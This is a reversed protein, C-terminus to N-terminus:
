DVLALLDEKMHDSLYLGGHYCFIQEIDLEALRLLSQKAADNDINSSRDPLGLVGNRMVLADGSILAKFEKLYVSIHGPMHGSTDIIVAGGCVSLEQNDYLKIDVHQFHIPPFADRRPMRKRDVNIPTRRNQQQLNEIRASMRKGEIYEAQRESALLKLNPYNQKLSEFGGFHDFDHHTVIVGNLFSLDIGYVSAAESIKQAFGPFGCDILLMERDDSIIVPYLPIEREKYQYMIKLQVIQKM